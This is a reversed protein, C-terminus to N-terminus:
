CSYTLFVRQGLCFGSRMNLRVCGQVFISAQICLYTGHEHFFASLRLSICSYSYLGLGLGVGGEHTVVFSRVGIEVIPLLKRDLMEGFATAAAKPWKSYTHRIIEAARPWVASGWATQLGWVNIFASTDQKNLQNTWGDLLEIAKQAHAEDKEIFWLLAHTYAAFADEKFPVWGSGNGVLPQCQPTYDPDALWLGSSANRAARAVRTTNAQWGFFWFFHHAIIMPMTLMISFRLTLMGALDNIIVFCAINFLWLASSKLSVSLYATYVPAVKGQVDSRIKELMPLSVIIGPHVYPPTPLPTTAVASFVLPLLM